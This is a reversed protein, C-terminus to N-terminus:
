AIIESWYYEFACSFDTVNKFIIPLCYWMDFHGSNGNTEIPFHFSYNRLIPSMDPRLLKVSYLERSM